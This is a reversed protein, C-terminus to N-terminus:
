SLVNKHHTAACLNSLISPSCPGSIELKGLLCVHSMYSPTCLVPKLVREYLLVLLSRFSQTREMEGGAIRHAEERPQWRERHLIVEM